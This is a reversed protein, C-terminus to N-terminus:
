LLRLLGQIILVWLLASSATALGISALPPWRQAEERGDDIDREGAWARDSRTAM